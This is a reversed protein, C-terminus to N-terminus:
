GAPGGRRRPRPPSPRRRIPTTGPGCRRRPRAPEDRARATAPALVAGVAVRSPPVIPSGTVAVCRMPADHGPETAAVCCMARHGPTPTPMPAARGGAVPHGAPEGRASRRASITARRSRDGDRTACAAAVHLCAAPRRDSSARGVDTSRGGRANTGGCMPQGDLDAGVTAGHEVLLMRARSPMGTARSAAGSSRLGTGPAPHWRCAWPTPPGVGPGSHCWGSVM